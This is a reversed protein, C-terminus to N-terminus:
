LEKEVKIKFGNINVKEVRIDSLYRCRNDGILQKKFKKEADKEDTAAVVDSFEGGTINGKCLYLHYELPKRNLLIFDDPNNGDMYGMNGFNINITGDSNIEMVKSITDQDEYASGIVDGIMPEEGSYYVKNM